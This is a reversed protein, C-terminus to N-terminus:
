SASNGTDACLASKKEREAKEQDRIVANLRVALLHKEPIFNLKRLDEITTNATLTFMREINSETLYYHNVAISNQSYRNPDTPYGDNVLKVAAALIPSGDQVKTGTRWYSGECSVHNIHFSIHTDKSVKLDRDAKPAASQESAHMSTTSSILFIPLFINKM